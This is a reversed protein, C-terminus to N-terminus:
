QAELTLQLLEPRHERAWAQKLLLSNAVIEIAPVGLLGLGHSYADGTGFGGAFHAKHQVAWPQQGLAGGVYLRELYPSYFTDVIFLKM